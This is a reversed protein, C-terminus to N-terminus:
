HAKYSVMPCTRDWCLRCDNGRCTHAKGWTAPCAAAQPHPAAKNVVSMRAWGGKAKALMATQQTPEGDVMPTSIRVVMNVPFKVAGDYHARAVMTAEMTPLWFKVDPLCEAVAVINALHWHGQLDGADHWRFLRWEPDTRAALGRILTTISEVWDVNSLSEYRRDMAAVTSKFTYRGKRAYCRNCVAGECAALMGGAQCQAPPLAYGGMPMKEPM